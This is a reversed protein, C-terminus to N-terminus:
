VLGTNDDLWCTNHSLSSYLIFTGLMALAKAETHQSMHVNCCRTYRDGGCVKCSLPYALWVSFLLLSPSISLPSLSFALGLLFLTCMFSKIKRGRLLEGHKGKWPARLAKPGRQLVGAENGFMINPPPPPSWDISLGSVGLLDRRPVSVDLEISKLGGDM